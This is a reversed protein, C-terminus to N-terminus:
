RYPFHYNYWLLAQIYNKNYRQQFINQLAMSVGGPKATRHTLAVKM